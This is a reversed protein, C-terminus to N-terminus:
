LSLKRLPLGNIAHSQLANAGVSKSLSSNPCTLPENEPAIAVLFPSNSIASLPVKNKSSIEFILRSICLLSKLTRSVQIILFTPSILSCVM